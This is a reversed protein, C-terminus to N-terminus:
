QNVGVRSTTNDPVIKGDVVVLNVIRQTSTGPPTTIPAQGEKEGAATTAM